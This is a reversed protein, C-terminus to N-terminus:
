ATRIVALAAGAEFVVTYVQAGVPITDLQSIGGGSSAFIYKMMGVAEVLAGVVLYTLHRPWVFYTAGDFLSPNSHSIMPGGYQVACAKGWVDDHGRLLEADGTREFTCMKYVTDPLNPNAPVVMGLWCPYYGGAWQTMFVFCDLDGSIIYNAPFSTLDMRGRALGTSHTGVADDWVWFNWYGNPAGGDHAVVCYIDETGSEGQSYFIRSVLGVGATGLDTWGMGTLFGSLVVTIFNTADTTLGRQSAFSAGDPTGVPLAGGTRLAFTDITPGHALVIWDCTAGPYGTTITDEPNVGVVLSIEGTIFRFEGAIEDEQNAILAFLPFSNDLACRVVNDSIADHYNTINQDWVGNHNRLIASSLLGNTAVMYYTEDVPALAFPMLCGLYILRYAAGTKFVIAIADLDASMWYAFQVGGSDVYGLNTTKHTGVADDRVDGLVRNPNGGDRRVHVFLKTYAAAEGVSSIVLDTTGSGAEVTWGVSVIWAEFTAFWDVVSDPALPDTVGALHSFAM